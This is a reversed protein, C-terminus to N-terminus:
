AEDTRYIYSGRFSGSTGVQSVFLSTSSGTTTPFIFKVYNQVQLMSVTIQAANAPWTGLGTYEFDGTGVTRQDATNDYPFGGLRLIDGGTTGTKATWTVYLNVMVLPGIRVYFGSQTGHTFSNSSSDTVVPTFTGSTFDVPVTLTEPITRARKGLLSEPFTVSM